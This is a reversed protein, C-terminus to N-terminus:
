CGIIDLLQAPNEVTAAAGHEILEDKGRFGWLVGVPFMGANVATDMDVSSDGVFLIQGPELGLRDAIELAGAPDPKRPVGDRQGLIIEFDWQPMFERVCLLTFEHPKNSLIATRVSRKALGDLLEAIGDYLHTKVKWNESYDTMFEALCSTVLSDAPEEEPLAARVLSYTGSGVFYRYADVPHEPFGRAGLVRNVSSALDELTNLLTGDLDFVVAEYTLNGNELDYGTM